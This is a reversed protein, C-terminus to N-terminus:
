QHSGLWSDRFTRQAVSVPMGMTELAVLKIRQDAMAEVTTQRLTGDRRFEILLRDGPRKDQMLREIDSPSVVRRGDVSTIVDGKNIGAEYM